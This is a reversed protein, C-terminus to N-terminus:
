HDSAYLCGGARVFEALKGPDIQDPTGCNVFLLSCDFTGLFPLFEVDMSTLIEGINDNGPRTVYVKQAGLRVLNPGPPYETLGVADFVRRHWRSKMHEGIGKPVAEQASPRLRERWCRRSLSCRALFRSHSASRLPGGAMTSRRVRSPM